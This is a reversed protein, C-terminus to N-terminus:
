SDDMMFPAQFAGIFQGHKNGRSHAWRHCRSCLLILNAPMLRAEAIAFSIRHHINFKHGPHEKAKKGCRQCTARDRAWIRRAMQKWEVSAYFAQREPTAGGKWSPAEPGRRGYMGNRPGSLGWHKVQRAQVVSRRSIGHKDLWFLIGNETIGFDAAIDAASRQKGIYEQELWSKDWYLQRSRWHQGRQFETAPSARQGKVFQGKGNRM